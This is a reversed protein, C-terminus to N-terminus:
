LRGHHASVNRIFNLSRLCQAFVAGKEFGYGSAVAQQDAHTMGSLLKSLLGFDWQEIAVWIPLKGYRLEHHQVFPQKRARKLLSHYKALWVEHGTRGPNAGGVRRKKAFNGHFCAPNEHAVADRSGLLHAVTVRVALEIRELADLALLKLKKDFVYLRMVDEFTSGPLFDDCRVPQGRTVAASTDMARMPYWYGSLRYYGVHQLDHLAAPRDDVILGRAELQALQDAFSKWRKLPKTTLPPSVANEAPKSFNFAM